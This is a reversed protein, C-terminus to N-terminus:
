NGGFFLFRKESSHVLTTRAELATGDAICIHGKKQALAEDTAQATKLLLAEPTLRGGPDVCAIGLACTAKTTNKNKDSGISIEATHEAFNKQIQEALLRARLVSVGPLLLAIRGRGTYGLTDCEECFQRMCDLLLTELALVTPDGLRAELGARDCLSAEIVTLDGGTRSLRLLERQIQGVLMESMLQNALYGEAMEEGSSLEPLLGRGVPLACWRGTPHLRLFEQWRKVTFGPLLRAVLVSESSKQSASDAAQRLALLERALADFEANNSM